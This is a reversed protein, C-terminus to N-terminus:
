ILYTLSFYTNFLHTLKAKTIVNESPITYCFDQLWWARPQDQLVLIQNKM